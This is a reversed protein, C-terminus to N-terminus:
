RRQSFNHLRIDLRARPKAVKLTHGRRCTNVDLVFFNNYNIQDLGKLLKFAQILDGRLRRGEWTSLQCLALRDEYCYHKYELIMNTARRQVGELLDIDKKLYLNWVQMFYELHPRVLCKYLQLLNDKTKFACVYVYLCVYMCVFPCVYAHLARVYVTLM